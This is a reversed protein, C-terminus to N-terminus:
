LKLTGEVRNAWSRNSTENNQARLDYDDSTDEIRASHFATSCVFQVRIDTGKPCIKWSCIFPLSMYCSQDNWGNTAHNGHYIQLCNQDSGGGPQKKSQTAWNAFNWDSGDVWKWNGEAEEDTGGIWFWTYSYRRFSSIRDVKRMLFNHIPLSTVSALTGNMSECHSKSEGWNLQLGKKGEQKDRSWFYCHEDFEEQEGEKCSEVCVSSSDKGVEECKFMSLVYFLNILVKIQISSQRMAVDISSRSQVNLQPERHCM